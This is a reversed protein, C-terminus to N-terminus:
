SKDAGGKRKAVLHNVVARVTDRDSEALKAVDRFLPHDVTEALGESDDTRGLLFDATVSLAEALTRLNDFSPRRTGTEFHSIAAPQLGARRALEGQSIGRLERAQRLRDEFKPPPATSKSM